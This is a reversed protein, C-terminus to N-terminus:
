INAIIRLMEPTVQRAEHLLRNLEVAEQLGTVIKEQNEPDAFFKAAESGSDTNELLEAIVTNHTTQHSM